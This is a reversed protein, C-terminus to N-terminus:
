KERLAARVADMLMRNQAKLEKIEYMLEAYKLALEKYKRETTLGFM